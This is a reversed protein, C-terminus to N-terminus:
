VVNYSTVSRQLVNCQPRVFHGILINYLQSQWIESFSLKYWVIDIVQHKNKLSSVVYIYSGMFTM